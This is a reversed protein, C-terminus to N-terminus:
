PVARFPPSGSYRCAPARGQTGQFVPCQVHAATQCYQRQHELRVTEPPSARHCYNWVSPYALCTRPDDQTGLHECVGLLSSPQVQNTKMLGIRPWAAIQGQSDDKRRPAQRSGSCQHRSVAGRAPAAQRSGLRPKKGDAGADDELYGAYQKYGGNYYPSYHRYGGYYYPRDRPIHNFIVGVVRAGARKLQELTARADQSQTRGPQVVLAVGDVKAGLVQVDAVLSPSTDLIIVEAAQAVEKLIQDMRASGLLETPNPPLSGSTIVLVNPLGEIRQSVLHLPVDSRFLDSLGTRNELDLFHHVQPKRLDADILVVRKGSQAVIAALNVAVTTKGENPSASTIMVSRLPKDVGAFELNTRLSRFAEAVPSRPQRLVYSGEESNDHYQMTAIYGIVTLGLVREVDEPTKLTDDLYEVLFVIGGALMLGVLGALLTNNVPKPRVPASPVAAKEIQVVNPTNQLRALRVSQLSSLLNIYVQQYLDLTSKLQALRASDSNAADSPQGLVLLNSYIQQYLTLVPQIEDLRAQDAAIKVRNSVATTPQLAAIEKQLASVEAQLPDIQARIASIQDQVTQTSVQDVQSQLATIQAQTQDVQQQLSQETTAYRGAQLNENQDILSQVLTNAIAAAHQPDPDEVTLQLVQTTGVQQAQLQKTDVRYGLQASAADLVPQTNFLQIYTQALQQDNLYTLDGTTNQSSAHTALIRTTAQYIPTQYRSVVFGAAAGLVLGIILLWVWRRLMEMYRKLEM